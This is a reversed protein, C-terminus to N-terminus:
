KLAQSLYSSKMDDQLQADCETSCNRISSLFGDPGNNTHHLLVDCTDPSKSTFVESSQLVSRESPPCPEDYTKDGIECSFTVTCSDRCNRKEGLTKQCDVFCTGHKGSCNGQLKYPVEPESTKYQNFRSLNEM